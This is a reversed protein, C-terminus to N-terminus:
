NRLINRVVRQIGTNLNTHFTHTCEIFITPQDPGMSTAAMKVVPAARGRYRLRDTLVRLSATVSSSHGRDSEEPLPERGSRRCELHTARAIEDDLRRRLRAARWEALEARRMALEVESTAEAM